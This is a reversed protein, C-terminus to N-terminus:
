GSKGLIQRVSEPMAAQEDATLSAYEDQLRTLGDLIAKSTAIAGDVTPKEDVDVLWDGDEDDDTSRYVAMTGGPMESMRAVRAGVAHRTDMHDPHDPDSPAAPIARRPAWRILEGDPGAMPLAIYHGADCMALAALREEGLEVVTWVLFDDDGEAGLRMRVQPDLEHFRVTSPALPTEPHHVLSQLWSRTYADAFTPVHSM